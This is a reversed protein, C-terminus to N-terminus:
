FSYDVLTVVLKYILLYRKWVIGVQTIRFLFPPPVVIALGLVYM